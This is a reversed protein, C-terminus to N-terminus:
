VSLKASLWGQGVTLGVSPSFTKGWGLQQSSYTLPAASTRGAGDGPKAAGEGSQEVGQGGAPLRAGLAALRVLPLAPKKYQPM